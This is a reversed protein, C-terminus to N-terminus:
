NNKYTKDKNKVAICIYMNYSVNAFIQEINKESIKQVEAAIYFGYLRMSVYLDGVMGTLM